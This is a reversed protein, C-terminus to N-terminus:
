KQKNGKGKGKGKFGKWPPRNKNKNKGKGKGRGKGKGKGKKWPFTSPKWYRHRPNLSHSAGEAKAPKPM